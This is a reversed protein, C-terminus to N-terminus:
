GRAASVEAVAPVGLEAARLGAAFAAENAALLEPHKASVVERLAERLADAGVGIVQPGAAALGALAVVSTLREAGAHVAEATCPVCIVCLDTREVDREILSRNVLITGGPALTSEFRALSPPTLVAVADYADVVPSGIRNPSVIVTCNATGGRMEPGYSPIWITELGSALAARALVEGAFLLGQGGFGAFVTARKQDGSM